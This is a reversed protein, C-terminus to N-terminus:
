GLPRCSHMKPVLITSVKVKNLMILILQNHVVGAEAIALYVTAIRIKM